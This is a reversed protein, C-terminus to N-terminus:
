FKFEFRFEDSVTTVETSQAGTHQAESVAAKLLNQVREVPIQVDKRLSLNHVSDRDMTRRVYSKRGTSIYTAPYSISRCASPYAVIYTANGGGGGGGGGGDDDDDDRGRQITKMFPFGTRNTGKGHSRSKRRGRGKGCICHAIYCHFVACLATIRSMPAMRQNTPMYHHTPNPNSVDFHLFPLSIAADIGADHSACVHVETSVCESVHYVTSTMRGSPLSIFCTLVNPQGDCPSTPTNRCLQTIEDAPYASAFTVHSTGYLGYLGEVELGVDGDGEVSRRNSLQQQHHQRSLMRELETAMEDRECYAQNLESELAAKLEELQTVQSQLQVASLLLLLHLLLLLLHQKVKTTLESNKSILLQSQLILSDKEERDREVQSLHRVTAPSPMQQNQRLRSLQDELEYSRQDAAQRLRKHYEVEKKLRALELRHGDEIRHQRAQFHAVENELGTPKEHAM